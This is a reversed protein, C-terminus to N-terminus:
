YGAAKRARDTKGLKKMSKESTLKNIWDTSWNMVKPLLIPRTCTWLSKLCNCTSPKRANLQQDGDCRSSSESREDKTTKIIQSSHEDEQEVLPTRIMNSHSNWWCMQQLRKQCKYFQWTRFSNRIKDPRKSLSSISKADRLSKKSNRNTILSVTFTDYPWKWKLKYKEM